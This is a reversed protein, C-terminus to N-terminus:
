SITIHKTYTKLEEISELIDDTARHSDKKEHKIGYKYEFLLKWATVDLMRYHLTSALKPWHHDIFKRDQGISNGSLIAQEHPIHQKIFSILESEVLHPDKGSPIRDILGSNGHHEKNWEDMNDIFQQPQKVVAHYTPSTPNLNLDTVLAAVEIIAEKKVDLGSMELDVWLLKTVKKAESM